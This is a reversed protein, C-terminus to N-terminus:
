SCSPAVHKLATVKVKKVPRTGSASSSSSTSSTSGAAGAKEDPTGTIEVKHGVHSKLNVNADATLEYKTDTEKGGATASASATASGSTGTASSARATQTVNTLTFSDATTGAQLCGTATITDTAKQKSTDQALLATSGVIAALSTLVLARKMAM